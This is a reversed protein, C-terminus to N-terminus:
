SRYFRALRDPSVGCTYLIQLMWNRFTCYLIGEREWRRASTTVKDPIICVPEGRKRIRKMLDVDEMIPIDAFGGIKRFLDRRIFMAQDGFPIGTFRTRLAVYKETIRFIWRDSRIGLGFAGTGYGQTVASRIKVLADHPLLTDAHLFVIIDGSARSAGNNMQRARGRPATATIVARDDITRITSGAPDGDVVIIEITKEGALGRLHAVAAQIMESEYLVPIVVSIGPDQPPIFKEEDRDPLQIM